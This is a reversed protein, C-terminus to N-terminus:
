VFFMAALTQYASGPSAYIKVTGDSAIDFRVAPDTAFILTAAPRYGAPLTLMTTGDTSTGDKIVGRLEVLSGIKRYQATAFSGGFNVWSNELTANLWGSDAGLVISLPIDAM